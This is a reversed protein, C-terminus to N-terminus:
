YGCASCNGQEDAYISFETWPTIYQEHYYMEMTMWSNPPTDDVIFTFNDYGSNGLYDIANIEIYYLGEEPLTMTGGSYISWASWGNHLIRYYITDVGVGGNCGTDWATIGIPTDSTVCYSKEGSQVSPEGVVVGMEPPSNDVYVVISNVNEVNGIHDVSYYEITHECEEPITFPGTYEYWITTYSSTIIRYYTHNVGCACGPYDVASLYIPTSTTIWNNGDYHYPTGFTLTTVPPSSDVHVTVLHHPEENGICDVSYYEITHTCEDPITFPGTYTQWTGGNIRYYTAVVGSACDPYDVATLTIPTSTTIWEDVGDTYYPTGYTLTTSPPSDDVNIEVSHMAETNGLNDVAYYQLTHHCENPINFSATNGAVVNWGDGYNYWIEKVGSPGCAPGDEATLIITTNTRIWINLGDTCYPGDFTRSTTPPTDDVYHIQITHESEHGLNDVSWFELKHMCEETFTFNATDGPVVFEHTTNDPYTIIYHIEKIGSPCLGVDTGNIWIPTHTTVWSGAIEEIVATTTDVSWNGWADTVNLTVTYNGPSTYVHTPNQQNSTNGDGFNWHWSYPSVGGTASGYFQITANVYGHYPGHANAILPQVPTGTVEIDDIYMNNGYDSVGLFAIYPDTNDYASLDVTHEVWGPSSANYRLFETINTWTTGDLSVQIVVKDDSSSYGSDHYMWFTLKCNMYNTFDVKYTYLRASSGYSCSYSNFKTMYSGSHPSCSPSTGSSVASWEPATWGPQNVVEMTWNAPPFGSAPISDFGTYLLNGLTNNVYVEDVHVGYGFHEEGRFAVAFQSPFPGESAEWYLSWLYNLDLSEHTYSPIDSHWGTLQYVMYSSANLVWIELYDQDGWWEEQKHWFELTNNSGATSNLTPTFLFTVDGNGYGSFEVAGDGSYSDSTIVWDTSGSYHWQWWDPPISPPMGPDYGEFGESLLSDRGVTREKLRPVYEPSGVTKNVIPNTDDVYFTENDYAVNGLGDYATINIWHMCEETLTIPGISAMGSTVNDYYYTWLGNYYIGVTLNLFGGMHLETANVWIPTSSTVYYTDPSPHYNPEGVTKMITINNTVYFTENDYVSNGLDDEVYYTVYHMCEEPLHILLSATGSTVNVWHYTWSGNFFTGVLIHVSGVPCLGADTANIYIPTSSTVYYDGGIMLHPEGVTKIVDPPTNDVYITENHYAVNGLDDMATINIWHECEEPLYIPGISATGAPVDTEYYTTLGTNFSYISVNVHVSGVPCLGADTANIYIPTSSTIYEGGGPVEGYIMVDDLFWDNINYANGNFEFMVQTATGIYPTIDITYTDPGVDGSIPNTWPTVDHWTDTANKRVYVTCNYGGSYDDIYSKFQLYLSSASSTNVAVSELYAYDGWINWWYLDAEPSTGGADSTSSQTWEGSEEQSWGAPPVGTAFNESLFSVTTTGGVKEYKPEGITKTIDPPTNDVYITENHYAVNGLDDMATINIWHECEEPLYIPGISATGAPVDTEYYTTLGTNFSYISVNVHVSGVPCLGADTANIYIPTSSTIHDGYIPTGFEKTIEPPTNDVYITENHYAVNGLDDMATINIWHECEEPLYIPGISATGAPVDTEYYTTLGTNFSYISVNVHVSGVPCLGADTANI